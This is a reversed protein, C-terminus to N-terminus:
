ILVANTRSKNQILKVRTVVRFMQLLPAFMYVSQGDAIAKVCAQMLCLNQQFTQTHLSIGQHEKVDKGSIMKYESQVEGFIM